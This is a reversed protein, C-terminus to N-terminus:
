LLFDRIEDDALARYDVERDFFLHKLQLAPKYVLFKRKRHFATAAILWPSVGWVYGLGM